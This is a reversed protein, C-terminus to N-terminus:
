RPQSSFTGGATEKDPRTDRLDGYVIQARFGRRVHQYLERFEPYDAPQCLREAGHIAVLSLQHTAVVQQDKRKWDGRLDRGTSYRRNPPIAIIPVGAPFGAHLKRACAQRQTSRTANTESSATAHIGRMSEAGPPDPLVMAGVVSFDVYDSADFSFSYGFAQGLDDVDGQLRIRGAGNFGSASMIAEQIRSRNQSTLQSFASRLGIEGSAGSDQLTHGSVSGDPTFQYFSQARYASTGPDNAPTRAVRGDATHVVPAGLDSAPLQGFRAYPSDIRSLTSDCTASPQNFRGLM